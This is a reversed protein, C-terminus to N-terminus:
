GCYEINMNAWIINVHFPGYFKKLAARTKRLVDYLCLVEVIRQKQQYHWTMNVSVVFEPCCLLCVKM